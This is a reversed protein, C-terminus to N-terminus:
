SRTPEFQLSFLHKLFDFRGFDNFTLNMNFRKRKKDLIEQVDEGATLLRYPDDFLLLRQPLLELSSHGGIAIQTCELSNESKLAWMTLEGYTFSVIPCVKETFIICVHFLM